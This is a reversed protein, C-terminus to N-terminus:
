VDFFNFVDSPVEGCPFVKTMRLTSVTDRLHWHHDNYEVYRIILAWNKECVLTQKQERPFNILYWKKRYTFQTVFLITFSYAKSSSSLSISAEIVRPSPCLWIDSKYGKHLYNKYIKIFVVCYTRHLLNLIRFAIFRTM